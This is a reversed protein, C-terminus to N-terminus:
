LLSVIHSNSDVIPKYVVGRTNAELIRKMSGSKFLVSNQWELVDKCLQAKVGAKFLFGPPNQSGGESQSEM